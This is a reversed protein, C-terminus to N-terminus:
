QQRAEVAVVVPGQATCLPILSARGSAALNLISAHGFRTWRRQVDHRLGRVTACKQQACGVAFGERLPEPATRQRTDASEHAAGGRQGPHQRVDSLIVATFLGNSSNSDSGANPRMSALWARGANSFTSASFRARRASNVASGRGVNAERIM